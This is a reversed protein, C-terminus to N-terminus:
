EEEKNLYNGKLKHLETITNQHKKLWQRTM